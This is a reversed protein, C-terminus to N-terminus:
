YYSHRQSLHREPQGYGGAVMARRALINLREGSVTDDLVITNRNNRGITTIPALEYLANM